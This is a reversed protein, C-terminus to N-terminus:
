ANIPAITLDMKTQSRMKVLPRTSFLCLNLKCFSKSCGQPGPCGRLIGPVDQHCLRNDRPNSLISRVKWPPFFSKSGCGKTRLVGWGVPQDRSGWFNIKASKKGAWIRGLIATQLGGGHKFAIWTVLGPLLDQISVNSPYRTERKSSCM